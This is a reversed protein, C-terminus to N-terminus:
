RCLVTCGLCGPGNRYHAGYIPVCELVLVTGYQVLFRLFFGEESSRNILHDRGPSVLLGSWGLDLCGLV